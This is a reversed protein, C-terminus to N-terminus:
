NTLLPTGWQEARAKQELMTSILSEKGRTSEINPVLDRGRTVAAIIRESIGKQRIMRDVHRYYRNAIRLTIGSTEAKTEAPVREVLAHAVGGLAVLFQENRLTEEDGSGSTDTGKSINYLEKVFRNAVAVSSETALGEKLITNMSQLLTLVYDTGITHKTNKEFYDVTCQMFEEVTEPRVTRLIGEHSVQELAAELTRHTIRSYRGAALEQITQLEPIDKTSLLVTKILDKGEGETGEEGGEIPQPSPLIEVGQEFENLYRQSFNYEELMEHGERGESANGVVCGATADWRLENKTKAALANIIIPLEEESVTMGRVRIHLGSLLTLLNKPGRAHEILRTTSINRRTM